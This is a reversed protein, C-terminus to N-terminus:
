FMNSQPPTARYPSHYVFVDCGWERISRACDLYLVCSGLVPNLRLGVGWVRFGVALHVSADQTDSM